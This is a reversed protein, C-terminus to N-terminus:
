FGRRLRRSFASDAFLRHRKAGFSHAGGSGANVHVPMPMPAALQKFGQYQEHGMTVGYRDIARLNALTLAIAHMNSDFDSYTGCPFRMTGDAGDFYLIIGPHTPRVKGRPWGDNRIDALAFGAEIVINRADLKGLEYELVNLTKAYTSKFQSTRMQLPRPEPWKPLPRFRADIM